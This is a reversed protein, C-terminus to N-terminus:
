IHHCVKYYMFEFAIGLVQNVITSHIILIDWQIELFVMLIGFGVFFFTSDDDSLSEPGFSTLVM